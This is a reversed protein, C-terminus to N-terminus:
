ARQHFAPTRGSDPLASRQSASGGPSPTAHELAHEDGVPALDGHADHAGDV